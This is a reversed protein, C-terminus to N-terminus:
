CLPRLSVLARTEDPDRQDRPGSLCCYWESDAPRRGGCGCQGGYLQGWAEGECLGRGPKADRVFISKRSRGGPHNGRLVVSSWARSGSLVPSLWSCVCLTNRTPFGGFAFAWLHPFAPVRLIPSHPPPQQFCLLLPSIFQLVFPKFAGQSKPQDQCKPFVPVSWDGHPSELSM